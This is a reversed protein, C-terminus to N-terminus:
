QIIFYDFIYTHGLDPPNVFHITFGTPTTEVYYVAGATAQNKATLAIKPQATYASTFTVKVQEGAVSPNVGSAAYTISGAIDNGNITITGTSAAQAGLVATAPNGASIIKGSVTINGAFNGQEVALLRNELNTVKVDLQQVSTVLLATIVNPNFSAVEGNADYTVAQPIIGAVAEAIFGYDLQGTSTWTYSVAQLLRLEDLGYAGATVDTKFRSSSTCGALQGASNRCVAAATDATAAAYTVIGTTIGGTVNLGQKFIAAGQVTLGGGISVGGQLNADGTMNLASDHGGGSTMVRNTGNRGVAVFLGNGYTIGHWWNAETATRATWTIGDPSTMVRNTGEAVAVFMGNGYTVSLWFNAEAATRATWTIGDPSTMVRNTGDSSVAVFLGNGYTVSYWSNAEAATRPTWTIGDPSTMVRNTGSTSTAVFLGNGYTIGLWSNAEAATRPTWTIGDPSTMVRNTGNGSVAVFLGNGYTISYWQNAEAAARPSWDIGNPSTMVRNTGDLSVAVFLGNGYTISYWFNAEAATRATWTIGDPSTMVRNTGDSSVAVFLGNGYTISRWQNAQAATRPTWTDAQRLNSTVSLTGQVETHGSVRLGLGLDHQMTMIYTGNIGVAVFLGNGYGVSRWSSDAASTRTTWTIGDPSTM